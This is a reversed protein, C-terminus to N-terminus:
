DKTLPNDAATLAIDAPQPDIRTIFDEGSRLSFSIGLPPSCQLLRRNVRSIVQTIRDRQTQTGTYTQQWIAGGDRHMLAELPTEANRITAQLFSGQQSTLGPCDYEVGRFVITRPPRFRPGDSGRAGTAAGAGGPTVDLPAGDHQLLSDIAAPVTAEDCLFDALLLIESPKLRRSCQEVGGSHIAVYLTPRDANWYPSLYRPDDCAEIVCVDVDSDDHEVRFVGRAVEEPGSLRTGIFSLVGAELVSVQLEPYRQKGARLPFVARECEPCKYDHGPEDLTAEVYVRGRCHRNYPPFDRDEPNACRVFERVSTRILGLAQLSQALGLLDRRPRPISAGDLLLRDVEDRQGRM